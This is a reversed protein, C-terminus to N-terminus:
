LGELYSYFKDAYEDARGRPITGKVVVFRDHASDDRFDGYSAELRLKLNQNCECISTTSSSNAPPAMM